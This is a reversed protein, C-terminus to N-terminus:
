VSSPRRQRAAAGLGFFGLLMMAWSAPEPVVTSSFFIEARKRANVSLTVGNGWINFTSACVVGAPTSISCNDFSPQARIYISTHGPAQSEGWSYIVPTLYASHSFTGDGNSITDVSFDENPPPLNILLDSHASDTWLDWRYTRGDAPVTYDVNFLIGGDDTFCGGDCHDITLAAAQSAFAIAAAGVWAALVRRVM